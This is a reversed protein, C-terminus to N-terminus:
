RSSPVPFSCGSTCRRTRPKGCAQWLPRCRRGTGAKGALTVLKVSDDLLIDLAFSQEKSRPPGGVRGGEVSRSPSRRLADARGRGLRSPLPTASSSTSTRTCTGPTPLRSASGAAYFADIFEKGVNVERFGRYLEEIDVKRLGGGHDLPTRRSGCNTDKTVVVVPVDKERARASLAVGLSEPQGRGWRWSRRFCPCVRAQLACCASGGRTRRLGKGSTAPPACGTSTSPYRGPTAGSLMNQDKKFHDLEEIVTIPTTARNDEFHFLANPDHLLARLEQDRPCSRGSSASRRRWRPRRRSRTSKEVLDFLLIGANKKDNLSLFSLGQKYM